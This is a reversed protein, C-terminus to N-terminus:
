HRDRKFNLHRGSLTRPNKVAKYWIPSGKPLPQCAAFTYITRVPTAPDPLQSRTFPTKSGQIHYGFPGYLGSLLRRQPADIFGTTRASKRLDLIPEIGRKRTATAAVPTRLCRISMKINQNHPPTPTPTRSYRRRTSRKPLARLLSKASTFRRAASSRYSM